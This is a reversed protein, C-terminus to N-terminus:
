NGYKVIVKVKNQNLTLDRIQSIGSNADICGASGPYSGGHLYFSHREGKYTVPTLRVNYDGWDGNGRIINYLQRIPSQANWDSTKFSYDGEPIPGENQIHQSDPNNMHKGKGSTASHEYLIEGKSNLVKVKTGEYVIIVDEDSQSKNNVKSHENHAVHNAASVVFGIAAGQWFNGGTLASGAGGSITGFAIQGAGSQAFSSGICNM